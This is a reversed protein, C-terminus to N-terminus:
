EKGVSTQKWKKKGVLLGYIDIIQEIGGLSRFMPHTEQLKTRQSVNRSGGHNLM